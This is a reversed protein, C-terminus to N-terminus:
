REPHNPDFPIDEFLAIDIGTSPDYKRLTGLPTAVYTPVGQREANSKDGPSFVDNAYKPDYAAHTHLRGVIRHLGFPNTPPASSVASGRKPERYTYKIVIVRTTISITYNRGFILNWLWSFPNDSYVDPNIYTITRTEIVARTYIYSAYECNEEISKANIYQAFDRAAEDMTDFLDGPKHGGFDVKNVPNNLCYAFTNYGLIGLSVNLQSDANIWRGIEPDYYRSNLYYFGTETDYYYGRYRIPNNNAIYSSLGTLGATVTSSVAGWADYKYRVLVTGNEDVIAVVDGQLNKVYYFTESATGMKVTVHSISGAEDYGYYLAHTLVKSGSSTDYVLERLITTGSVVYEHLIYRDVLEKAIRVGNADYAYRYTCLAGFDDISALQRGRTWNLYLYGGWGWQLPNGLADYSTTFGGYQETSGVGGSYVTKGTLRDGVYTYVVTELPTTGAPFAGAAYALKEECILNHGADYTYLITCGLRQNNERVLRGMADYEYSTVYTVGGETETIRTINGVADYVYTYSTSLTPPETKVRTAMDTEVKKVTVTYSSVATSTRNGSVTEFGYSETRTMQGGATVKQALRKLSDYTYSVTSVTADGYKTVYRALEQRNAESYEARIEFWTGGDDFFAYHCRLPVGYEDYSYELAYLAVGSSLESVVARSLNGRSDYLYRQVRGAGHDTVLSIQGAAYEYSYAVVNNYSIESVNDLADYAYSVTQGTAYTMSQLKGNNKGYTYTALVSGGVSVSLMNGFADYTFGYVATATTIATLRDRSDYTYSISSAEAATFSAASGTAPSVKALSGDAHYTYAVGNGDAGIVASPRGLADYHYYTVNGRDDTASTVAGIPTGNKATSYATQTAIYAPSNGAQLKSETTQGRDNYGYTQTYLKTGNKTYTTESDLTFDNEDSAYRYEYEVYSGDPATYKVPRPDGTPNNQGDQAYEYGGQGEVRISATPNGNADYEYRTLSGEDWVLSINDFFADGTNYNYLCEVAIETITLDRIIMEANPINPHEAQLSEPTLYLYGSLYQWDRCQWNAPIETHVTYVAGNADRYVVEAMLAFTANTGDTCASNEAKAFGSLILPACSWVSYPVSLSIATWTYSTSGNGVLRMLRDGFFDEDSNAASVAATEEADGSGWGEAGSTGREMHGNSLLSAEGAGAGPVIAIDDFYASPAATGGVNETRQFYLGVRYEGATEVEFTVSLRLGDEGALLSSQGTLVETTPQDAFSLEMRLFARVRDYDTCNELRVKGSLTYVGPALSVTQTASGYSAGIQSLTIKLSRGDTEPDTVVSAGVGLSWVEGGEEFSGNAVYNVSQVSTVIQSTLSHPNEAADSYEGQAAGYLERRSVDTSYISATRGAHDFVYTTLIDDAGNDVADTPDDDMLHVGDSGASRVTTSVEDYVFSIRQGAVYASGDKGLEQVSSVKGGTYSYVLRRAGIEDTIQRLRGGDLYTFSTDQVATGNAAWVTVRRLYGSPSVTNGSPSTSYEFSVTYRLTGNSAYAKLESIQESPYSVTLLRASASGGSDTQYLLDVATLRHASNRSFSLCNRAVDIIQTLRGDADFHQEGGKESTLVYTNGDLTLTLGLGEEDQLTVDDVWLFAHSTGDGDIYNYYAVYGDVFVPEIRMEYDAMWANAGNRRAGSYTLVPAYGFLEEGGGPLSIQGVLAGTLLQVAGGFGALSQTNYTYHSELGEASLYYVTLAPVGVGAETAYFTYKGSATEEELHICLGQNSSANQYWEKVARTVTFSVTGGASLSSLNAEYLFYPDYRGEGIADDNRDQWTFSDVNWEEAVQYAYASAGGNYGDNALTLTLEAGAVVAYDPLTPLSTTKYYIDTGQGLYLYELGGYNTNPFGFAVTTDAAEAGGATIPPDVTVPFARGEANIWAADAAVTLTYKGTGGAPALTYTVGRSVAGEADVMVGSPIAFVTEGEANQLLIGGAETVTPTLNNLDLLFTYRYEEAKEKVIINEKIGTPTVVYELDVGALIDAYTIRSSLHSLYAKKGLETANEPPASEEAVVGETKKVAGSLRLTMKANGEWLTFLSENGSIKKAFKVKTNATAYENGSSVLRNDVDQWTGDESMEHVPVGYSVAAIKGGPLRFHKVREERLSTIEVIESGERAETAEGAGVEASEAAADALWGEAAAAPFAYFVFLACLLVSLARTFLLFTHKM